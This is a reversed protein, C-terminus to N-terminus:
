IHVAAGLEVGAANVFPADRCLLSLIAPVHRSDCRIVSLLRLLLLHFTISPGGYIAVLRSTWAQARNLASSEYFVKQAAALHIRKTHHM